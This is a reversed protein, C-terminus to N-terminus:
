KIFMADGYSFFRYNENVAHKYVTKMEDLGCLACMLIFLTSKPLHFNTIMRDVINFSYGPKIFINTSLEGHKVLQGNKSASELARLTTTGVAILNKGEKKLYNIREYTIEPIHFYEEHMHHDEINQTKIPRFTGIGVNLTIELVEVGKQKIKQLLETTFHLGATPAAVSGPSSSYVTQYRKEDMKEDERKVYPPLPMHGKCEMIRYINDSFLIRRRGSTDTDLVEATFDDLFIIDGTKINGKTIGECETPSIVNLVLIETKGGTKKRGLLRAKLVKTNNIVLFDNETIESLIDKFIRDRILGSKRDYILLRSEDRKDSPYQAINKEPLHFDFKDVPTKM